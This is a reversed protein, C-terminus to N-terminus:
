RAVGAKALDIDCPGFKLRASSRRWRYRFDTREFSTRGLRRQLCKRHCGLVALVAGNASLKRDREIGIAM